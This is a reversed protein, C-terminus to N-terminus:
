VTSQNMQQVSQTECLVLFRTIKSSAQKEKLLRFRVNNKNKFTIFQRFIARFNELVYLALMVSPLSRRLLYEMQM